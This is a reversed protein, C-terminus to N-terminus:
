AGAMILLYILKAARVREAADRIDVGDADVLSRQVAFENNILAIHLRNAYDMVGFVMRTINGNPHIATLM